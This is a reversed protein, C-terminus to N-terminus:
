NASISGSNYRKGEMSGGEKRWATSAINGAHDAVSERHREGVAVADLALEALAAHRGHVEGLVQLVVALDRELDELGFEGGHEAGLPEHHLDLGGRRQLM